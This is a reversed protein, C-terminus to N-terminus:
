LIRFKGEILISGGDKIFQKLHQLNYTISTQDQDFSYLHGTTLQNLIASSHGGGGLTADVYTGDPRINLGAVAENLLVTVHKFETM